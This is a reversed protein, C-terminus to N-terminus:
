ATFRLRRRRALVAGATGALLLLLGAGVLVGGPAGTVPLGGGTGGAEPNVVIKATDNSRVPDAGQAGQVSVAGTSERGDADIRFTFDFLASQGSRLREDPTCSYFGPRTAEPLLVPWCREDASVVTTGKPPTVLVGFVEIGTFDPDLTAPGRNRLGLRTSVRAGQAGTITAGVAALDAPHRGTIAIETWFYNGEPDVDTQPAGAARAARSSEEVLRLDGGTGPRGLEAETAGHTLDALDTPTLWIGLATTAGPAAVDHPVPLQLPEATRYTRGPALEGAFTCLVVEGYRCNGFRPAPRLAAAATFLLLAAGDVAVRGTNRVRPRLAAHGGPAASIRDPGAASLDVGEGIRVPSEHRVTALGRGSASVRLVGGQGVQAQPRPTVLLGVVEVEPFDDGSLVVPDAYTCTLVTGATSCEPGDADVSEPDRTVRVLDAVATSDVEIKLDHVVSPPRQADGPETLTLIVGAPKGAGGPVVTVGPMILRLDVAPPAALAPPTALGIVAVAAALGAFMRRGTRYSM